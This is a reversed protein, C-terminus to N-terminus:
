SILCSMSSTTHRIFGHYSTERKEKFPQISVKFKKNQKTTKKNYKILVMQNGFVFEVLGYSVYHSKNAATLWIGM